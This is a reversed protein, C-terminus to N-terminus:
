RYWDGRASKAYGAALLKDELASAADLDVDILQHVARDVIDSFIFPERRAIMAELRQVYGEEGM